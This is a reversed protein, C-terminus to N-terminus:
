SEDFEIRNVFRPNRIAVKELELHDPLFFPEFILQTRVIILSEGLPIDPLDINKLVDETLTFDLDFDKGGVEGSHSHTETWDIVYPDGKKVYSVSAINMRFAGDEGYRGLMAQGAGLLGDMNDEDIVAMRTVLDAMSGSALSARQYGKYSDFATIMGIFVVVLFPLILAFEMAALGDERSLSQRSFFAKINVTNIKHTTMM